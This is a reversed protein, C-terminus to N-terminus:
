QIVKKIKLFEEVDKSDMIVTDSAFTWAEENIVEDTIMFYKDFTISRLSEELSVM